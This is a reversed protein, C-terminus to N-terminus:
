SHKLSEIIKEIAERSTTSRTSIFNDVEELVRESDAYAHAEILKRLYKLEEPNTENLLDELEMILAKKM